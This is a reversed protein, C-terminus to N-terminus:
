LYLIRERVASFHAPSFKLRSGYWSFLEGDVLMIKAHPCIGRLEELHKEKFPYPESSLLIIEPELGNIQDHTLQPYRDLGTGSSVNQWGCREIMNNIFTNKGASMYPDRWILYLVKLQVNDSVFADFASRINDIVERSEKEKDCLRGINQMAEFSDELSFIDTMYLPFEKALLEIQEQQNEEKNAIILDPKLARIEDIKLVKTGGIRKKSRFWSEPHICFKTIGVVEEDLGICYLFETQSPVVSVIRRAPANFQDINESTIFM